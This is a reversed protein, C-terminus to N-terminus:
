LYVRTYYQVLVHSTHRLLPEDIDVINYITDRTYVLVICVSFIYLQFTYLCDLALVHLHFSLFLLLLLLWLSASSLLSFLHSFSRINVSYIINKQKKHKNNKIMQQQEAKKKNENQKQNQKKNSQQQQKSYCQAVSLDRHPQSYLSKQNNICSTYITQTHSNRQTHARRNPSILHARSKECFAFSIIDTRHSIIVFIILPIQEYLRHQNYTCALM